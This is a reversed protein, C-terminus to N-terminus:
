GPTYKSTIMKGSKDDRVVFALPDLAADEAVAYPLGRMSLRWRFLRSPIGRRLFTALLPHVVLTIPRDRYKDPVSTRYQRLWSEIASAVEGATVARDRREPEYRREPQAIEGAGIAAMRVAVESGDGEGAPVDDTLRDAKQTLSPRLRQRTIEIIGFDSMPLLKTVARDKRFEDKLCNYVKKRDAESYMDIFDVVIIGGLDRLRLQRAVEKAAEMNVRLLNESQSLGRGARGSNVDVVHM